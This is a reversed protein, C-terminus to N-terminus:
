YVIKRQAICPTFVFKRSIMGGTPAPDGRGCFILIRSHIISLPYHVIFTDGKAIIQIIPEASVVIRL